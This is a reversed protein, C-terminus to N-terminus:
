SDLIQKLQSILPPLDSQIIEWLIDFDVDDYGHVLRNRLGIIDPWPIVNHRERGDASVRTAAEGVIELLRILSLNLLRDTELDSRTRGRAVEVAEAAHELMHRLSTQDDHRSM